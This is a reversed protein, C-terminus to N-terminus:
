ELIIKKTLERDGILVRVFYIGRQLDGRDISLNNETTSITKVVKGTADYINVIATTNQLENININITTTAPNPFISFSNKSALAENIGVTCTMPYSYSCTINYTADTIYVTGTFGAPISDFSTPITHTLTDGAAQGFFYFLSNINAVTDGLSNTVLVIPYNVFNTDGNYVTVDLTNNGITDINNISLICFNGCNVTQANITIAFAFVTFIILLIKKM